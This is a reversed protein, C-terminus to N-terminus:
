QKSLIYHIIKMKENQFSDKGTCTVTINDLDFTEGLMSEQFGKSINGKKYRVSHDGKEIDSDTNSALYTLDRLHGIFNYDSMTSHKEDRFKVLDKIHERKKELM